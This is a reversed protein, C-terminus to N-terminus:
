DKPPKRLQGRVAGGPFATTHVNVYYRRPRRLVKGILRKAVGNTCGTFRTGPEPGGILEVVIGGAVGRRGRHIHAAVVDDINRVRITFCVRREARNLRLKATGTGNPDGGPATEQAGSLNAQLRKVAGSAPAALLLVAALVAIATLSRLPFRRRDAVAPNVRRPRRRNSARRRPTSRPTRRVHSSTARRATSGYVATGISIAVGARAALREATARAGDAGTSPLLVAFEDGGIRAVSDVERLEGRLMEGLEVLTADGAAHGHSDNIQKFCDVDILMATFPEGSRRARALEHALREALARRNLLGTLPDTSAALRLEGVLREIRESLVLVVAASGVALGVTTLWRSTAIPGPDIVILAVTYAAAVIAVQVATGVRGLYHAAYLVVWLYYMEDGGAAGGQREGNFILGFTVLVTGCATWVYFTWYPLREGGALLVATLVAAGISVFALGETELGPQHPLFISLLTILGAAGFLAAATRAMQRRRLRLDM